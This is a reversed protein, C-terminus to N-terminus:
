KGFDHACQAILNTSNLSKKLLIRPGGICKAPRGSLAAYHCCSCLGGEHVCDLNCACTTTYNSKKNARPHHDQCSGLEFLVLFFSFLYSVFVCLLGGPQVRCANSSMSIRGADLLFAVARGSARNVVCGRVAQLGLSQLRKSSALGYGKALGHNSIEANKSFRDLFKFNWLFDSL